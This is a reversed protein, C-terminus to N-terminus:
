KFDPKGPPPIYCIACRSEYLEAGGAIITPEDWVAPKGYRLRQTFFAVHSSGNRRCNDCYPLIRRWYSLHKVLALLSLTPGFPQNRYDTELGSAFIHYGAELLGDVVDYLQMSFFQTEDIGLFKINDGRDEWECVIEFMTEPSNSPITIAPMSQGNFTTIIGEESRTDATPKFILAKAGGHQRAKEIEFFMTETKGGRMPGTFLQLRGRPM